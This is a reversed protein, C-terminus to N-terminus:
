GGWEAEAPMEGRIRESRIPTGEMYGVMVHGTHRWGEKVFKLESRCRAEKIM